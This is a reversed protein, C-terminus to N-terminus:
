MSETISYGFGRHTLIIDRDPAIAKLKARITKVHTDVTREMSTEPEEWAREMLQKRSFIRGPNDALTKLIEYEYRSLKLPESCFFVCRKDNDVELCHCPAKPTKQNDKINSRTDTRRLVAKIRAALERPSFPKTVYDDAGIELGVIKDIEDSRATLFVIPVNATKRIEKCLEMGNMDPLGVDLVILSIDSNCNLADKGERATARWLPEFGEAELVFSINDAISSEDEIILIKRRM